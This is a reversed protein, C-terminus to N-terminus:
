RSFYFVSLGQITPIKITRWCHCGDVDSAWIEDRGRIFLLQPNRSDSLDISMPRGLEAETVNCTCYNRMQKEVLGHGLIHHVTNNLIDYYFMCSGNDFEELWYLRSGFFICQKWYSSKLRVLRFAIRTQCLLQSNHIFHNSCFFINDTSAHM